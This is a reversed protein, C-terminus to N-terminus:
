RMLAIVENLHGLEYRGITSVVKASKGGEARLPESAAEVFDTEARRHDSAARGECSDDPRLRHALKRGKGGFRGERGVGPDGRGTPFVTSYGATTRIPNDELAFGHYGYM